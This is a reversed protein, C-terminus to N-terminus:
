LGNVHYSVDANQPFQEGSTSDSLIQQIASNFIMDQSVTQTNELLNAVDSRIKETAAAQSNIVTQQYNQSLMWLSIGCIIGIVPTAIRFISLLRKTQFRQPSHNHKLKFHKKNM